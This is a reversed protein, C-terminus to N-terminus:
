CEDKALSGQDDFVVIVSGGEILETASSSLKIAFTLPSALSAPLDAINGVGGTVNNALTNSAYLQFVEVNKNDMGFLAVATPKAGNSVYELVVDQFNDAGVTYKNGLTANVATMPKALVVAASAPSQSSVDDLSNTVKVKVTYAVGLQLAPVSTQDVKLVNTQTIKTGVLSAGSYIAWEYSAIGEGYLGGMGDVQGDAIKLTATLEGNKNELLPAVPTTPAGHVSILESLVPISVQSGANLIAVVYYKTGNTLGTFTDFTVAPTTEEGLANKVAATKIGDQVSQTVTAVASGVNATYYTSKASATTPWSSKALVSERFVKYTVNTFANGQLLEDSIPILNVAIQANGGVFTTSTIPVPSPQAFPTSAVAASATKSVANYGGGVQPSLKDQHASSITVYISYLLSPLFTFGMEALSKDKIALVNGNSNTELALQKVTAAGSPPTVVINMQIPNSIGAIYRWALKAMNLKVDLNGATATIVPATMTAANTQVSVSSAPGFVQTNSSTFLLSPVVKLDFKSGNVIAPAFYYGVVDSSMDGAYGNGVLDYITSSPEANPNSVLAAAAPLTKFAKQAIVNLHKALYYVSVACKLTASSNTLANKQAASAANWLGVREATTPKSTMASNTIVYQVKALIQSPTLLSDAGTAASGGTAQQTLFYDVAYEQCVTEDDFNSLTVQYSGPSTSTSNWNNLPQSWNANVVNFDIGVSQIGTLITTVDSPFDNFNDILAIQEAEFLAASNIFQIIAKADALVTNFLTIAADPAAPFPQLVAAKSSVDANSNLTSQVPSGIRSGLANLINRVYTANASAALALINARTMMSTASTAIAANYATIATNLMTILNQIALLNNNYFTDATTSGSATTAIMIAYLPANSAMGTDFMTLPSADAFTPLTTPTTLSGPKSTAINTRLDAIKDIAANVTNGIRVIAQKVTGASLQIPAANYNALAIAAAAVENNYEILAAGPAADALSTFLTNLASSETALLKVIAANINADRSKRSVSLNTVASPAALPVVTFQASTSSADSGATNVATAKFHYTTNSQLLSPLVFYLQQNTFVKFGNTPMQSVLSLLLPTTANVADASPAYYLSGGIINDVGDDQQVALGLFPMAKSFAADSGLTVNVKVCSNDDVQVMSSTVFTPPAMYNTPRCELPESSPSFGKSNIYSATAIYLTDTTIGDSSNFEVFVSTQPDVLAYMASPYAVEKKIIAGTEQDALVICVKSIQNGGDLTSDDSDKACAPVIIGFSTASIAQFTLRGPAVADTAPTFALATSSVCVVDAPTASSADTYLLEAVIKYAKGNKLHMLVNNVLINSAKLTFKAAYNAPTQTNGTSVLAKANKMTTTASGITQTSEPTICLPDDIDLCVVGYKPGANVLLKADVFQFNAADWSAVTATINVSCNDVSNKALTITAPM